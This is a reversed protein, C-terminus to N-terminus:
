NNFFKVMEPFTETWKTKRLQDMKNLYVVMRAIVEPSGLDPLLKLMLSVPHEEGFYNYFKNRIETPTRNLDLPDGLSRNPNVLRVRGPSKWRNQPITAEAWDVVENYYWVNLPSVTTTIGISINTYENNTFKLINQEVRNWNLPWRLYNFREGIGDISFVIRIKKFKSWLDFVEQTPYVSGNTQYELQINEPFPHVSLIHKMLKVHTNSWLPEGGMMFVHQLNGMPIAEILRHLFVDSMSTDGQNLPYKLYHNHYEQELLTLKKHINLDQQPFRLNHKKNFKAWTSSAYSGCTICAANCKTNFSIELDACAGNDVDKAIKVFSQLRPAYNPLNTQEMGRCSKCEPLWDTASSTYNLERNFAETNTIDTKKSYFCCPSWLIKNGEINIKYGNSLQRCFKNSM